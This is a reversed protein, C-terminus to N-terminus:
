GRIITKGFVYKNVHMMPLRIVALDWTITHQKVFLLVQALEVGLHNKQKCFSSLFLEPGKLIWIDIKWLGMRSSIFSAMTVHLWVHFSQSPYQQWNLLRGGKFLKLNWNEGWLHSLCFTFSSNSWRKEGFYHPKNCPIGLWYRHSM